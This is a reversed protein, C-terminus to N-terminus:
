AQPAGPEWPPLSLRKMLFEILATVRAPRLRGPPTVINLAIPPAAWAPLATELAGSRLHQWVTFEPQLSIGQGALLMANFVNANNSHLRGAVHANFRGEVPHEFQWFDPTAIYTYILCHHSGLESPHLPRGHRAFYAPSAVLLRRVGCLRRALLSSDSLAAIRLALDFGEGILDAIRDDLVLDITIDPYLQLFEPLIDALIGIGFSMPAALRVVGRPSATQMAAEAEVAEGESLIRAARELAAQGSATLSLRRSSRHLLATGLRQELRSVAKSVTPKSLDLSEAARVFSGMEAVKAFIAWAELDPLRM